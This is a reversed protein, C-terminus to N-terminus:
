NIYNTNLIELQEKAWRHFRNKNKIYKPTISIYEAYLDPQTQIEVPVEEIPVYHEENLQGLRIIDTPKDEKEWASIENVYLNNNHYILINVEYIRSISLLILETPLRTWSGSRYLDVIMMDYNYKYMEKERKEWVWEECNQNNFLEELSNELNPFFYKEDRMLLMVAAVNRRIEDDTGLGLISLSEFICNGICKTLKAVHFPGFSLINDNLKRLDDNLVREIVVSMLMEKEDITLKRDLFDEWTDIDIKKPYETILSM